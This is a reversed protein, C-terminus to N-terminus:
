ISLQAVFKDLVNNDVFPIRKERSKEFDDKEYFSIKKYHPNSRSIIGSIQFDQIISDLDESFPYHGNTNFKLRKFYDPYSSKLQYFNKHLLEHNDSFTGKEKKDSLFENSGNIAFYKLLIAEVLVSLQQYSKVIEM